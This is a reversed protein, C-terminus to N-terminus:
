PIPPDTKQVGRLLILDREAKQRVRNMELELQKNTELWQKTLFLHHERLAINNKNDKMNNAVLSINSQIDQLMKFLLGFM